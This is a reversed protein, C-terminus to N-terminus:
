WVLRRFKVLEAQLRVKMSELLGEFSSVDDAIAFTVTTDGEKISKVATEENIGEIQGIGKKNSLFEACVMDVMFFFLNEPIGTINCQNEIYNDVKEILFNLLWEDADTVNYGLSELRKKVVELMAGM